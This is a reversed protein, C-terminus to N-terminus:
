RLPQDFNMKQPQYNLFTEAECTMVPIDYLNNPNNDVKPFGKNQVRLNEKKM